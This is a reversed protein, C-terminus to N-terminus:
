KNMAKRLVRDSTGRPFMNSNRAFRSDVLSGECVRKPNNMSLGVVVNRKKYILRRIVIMCLTVISSFPTVSRGVRELVDERDQDITDRRCNLNLRRPTPRVGIGGLRM